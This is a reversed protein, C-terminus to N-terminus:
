KVTITRTTKLASYLILSKLIFKVSIFAPGQCIPKPVCSLFNFASSFSLPLATILPHSPHRHSSFLLCSFFLLLTLCRLAWRCPCFNSSFNQLFRRQILVSFFLSTKITLGSDAPLLLIVTFFVTFLLNCNDPCVLHVSRYLPM